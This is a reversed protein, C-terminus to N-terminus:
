IKRLFNIEIRRVTLIKFEFYKFSLKDTGKPAFSINEGQLTVGQNGIGVGFYFKSKDSSEGIECGDL